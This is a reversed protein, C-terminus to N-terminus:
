KTVTITTFERNVLDGAKSKVTETQTDSKAIRFFGSQILGIIKENDYLEFGFQTFPLHQMFEKQAFTINMSGGPKLVRYLESLLLQPQDWFYITNVTLIRDFHNEPFPVTKGDYLHFSAQCAEVYEANIRRAEDRMLESIELGTYFLGSNQKLLYPLHGCNGHGLELIRDNECISLQEISHATMRANTESMIAAVEVGNAGTPQRLQAALETLQNNDM